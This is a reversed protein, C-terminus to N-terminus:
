GLADMVARGLDEDGCVSAVAFAFDNRELLVSVFGDGFEARCHLAYVGGVGCEACAEGACEEFALAVGFGAAQQFFEGGAGGQTLFEDQYLGPRKGGATVRCAGAAGEFAGHLEVGVGFGAAVVGAEEGVVAVGGAGAFEEVADDAVGQVPRSIGARLITFPKTPSLHPQIPQSHSPPKNLPCSVNSPM